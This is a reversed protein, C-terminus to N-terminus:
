LLLCSLLYLAGIHAPYFVYFFTKSGYGRQGNYLAIPLAALGMLCQFGGGLLYVLVSLLVLATIQLVRHGRLIYFAVGLAAMAAGGEIALINPLLLAAAALLQIVSGPISENASLLAVLYLPLACLVPILCCLLAQIVQKPAKQKVGDRLRDWFLMYLGAVFFTSFANNMLVVNDNPVTRQLVFTFVSMGWSAFLLRQLYAKKSRTHHFSEAATFLFLPFVVRGAMTLGVPAGAAAFMQHIHDLVMLAAALLKIATASLWPGVQVLPKKGPRSLVGNNM